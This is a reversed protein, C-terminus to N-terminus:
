WSPSSEYRREKGVRREESRPSSSVHSPGSIRNLPKLLLVDGFRVGTTPQPYTGQACSRTVWLKPVAHLNAVAVSPGVFRELTIGVPIHNFVFTIRWTSIPLACTQ